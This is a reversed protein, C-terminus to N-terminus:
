KNRKIKLKIGKNYGAVFAKMCICNCVYGQKTDKQNPIIAGVNYDCNSPCKFAKMFIKEPTM